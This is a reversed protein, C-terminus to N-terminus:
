AEVRYWVRIWQLLPVVDRWGVTEINLVEISERDIWQNAAEVAADFAAANVEHKSFLGPHKPVFDKYAIM